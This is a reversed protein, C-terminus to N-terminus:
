NCSIWILINFVVSIRNKFVVSTTHPLYGPYIRLLFKLKATNYVCDEELKTACIRPRDLPYGAM